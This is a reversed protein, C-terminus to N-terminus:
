KFDVYCKDIPKFDLEGQYTAGLFLLVRPYTMFRCTKMPEPDFYHFNYISLLVSGHKEAIRRMVEALFGAAEEKNDPLLINDIEAVPFTQDLLCGNIVNYNIAGEIGDNELVLTYSVPPHDFQWQFEERNWARSMPVTKRYDNFKAMLEKTDTPRFPRVKGKPGLEPIGAKRKLAWKQLFGLGKARDLAERDLVKILHKAKFIVEFTVGFTTYRKILKKMLPASARRTYLYSFMVRYDTKEFIVDKAHSAMNWAIRKRRHDPHVTLLTGVLAELKKNQLHYMTRPLLCLFGVPEDGKYAGIQLAPDMGPGKLLWHLWEPNYELFMPSRDVDAKWSRYILDALEEMSGDYSRIDYEFAM